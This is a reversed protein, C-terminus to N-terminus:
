NNKIIDKLTTMKNNIEEWEKIPNSENTIGGGAYLCYEISNFELCRLIVYYNYTNENLKPGCYGGYFKRKHPENKILYEIAKEKPYGSIAPTPHLESLLHNDTTKSKLEIQFKNCLHEINGANQTFTESINYHLSNNEISHKIYDTVINQEEIEKESWPANTNAKRTGALSMTTGKGNDNCLIIEPTAGMWFNTDITKFLFVFAHPYTKCLAVFDNTWDKPSKNHLSYETGSYVIKKCEGKNIYNIANKISQIYQERTSSLNHIPYETKTSNTNVSLFNKIDTIRCKVTTQKQHKIDFPVAIFEKSYISDSGDDAGFFIEEDDPLRYVCFSNGDTIAKEIATILKSQM